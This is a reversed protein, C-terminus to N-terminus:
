ERGVLVEQVYGEPGYTKFVMNTMDSSGRLFGCPKRNGLLRRGSEKKKCSDGHTTVEIRIRGNMEGGTRELWCLNKLVITVYNEKGKDSRLKEGHHLEGRQTCSKRTQNDNNGNLQM